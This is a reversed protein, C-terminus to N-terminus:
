YDEQIHTQNDLPRLYGAILSKVDEAIEPFTLLERLSERGEKQEIEQLVPLGYVMIDAARIDETEIMTGARKELRELRQMIEATRM